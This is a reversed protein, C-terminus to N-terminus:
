LPHHTHSLGEVHNWAKSSEENWKWGVLARGWPLNPMLAQMILIPLCFVNVGWPFNPEGKDEEVKLLIVLLDESYKCTTTLARSRSYMYMAWKKFFNWFCAGIFVGVNSIWRLVLFIGGGVKLGKGDGINSSRQPGRVFCFLKTFYYCRRWETWYSWLLGDSVWLCFFSVWRLHVHGHGHRWKKGGM